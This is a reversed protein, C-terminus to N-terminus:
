PYIVPGEFYITCIKKPPFDDISVYIGSTIAPSYSGSMPDEGWGAVTYYFDNGSQGTRMVNVRNGVGATLDVKKAGPATIKFTYHSGALLHFDQNTDSVFYGPEWITAACIKQTPQGSISMYLGTCSGPNGIATIKYYYDNGTHSTLLTNFVGSTGTSFQPPAGTSSTIKIQYSTNQVVAFDNTTDSRLLPDPSKSGVTVTCIKKKDQGTLYAYIGASKGVEGTATIRFYYDDGDTFKEIRQTKVVDPADTEFLLVNNAPNYPCTIKFQYTSDRALTFDNTTDSQVKIKTSNPNEAVTIVCFKQAPQGPISLYLGTSSGSKGIAEVGYTHKNGGWSSLWTDVVGSTGVVFTADGTITFKVGSNRYITINGSLDVSVASADGKAPASDALVPKGNFFSFGFSVILFMSVFCFIKKKM